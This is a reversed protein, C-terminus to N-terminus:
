LHREEEQDKGGRRRRGREEGGGGGGWVGRGLGGERGGKVGQEKRQQTRGEISADIHTTTCTHIYTDICTHTICTHIYEGTYRRVVLDAGSLFVAATGGGEFLPLRPALFSSEGGGAAFSSADGGAPIEHEKKDRGKGRAVEM